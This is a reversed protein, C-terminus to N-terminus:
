IREAAKPDRGGPAASKKRQRYERQQALVRERNERYHARSKERIKERNKEYYSRQRKTIRERNEKYYAKRRQLVQERNRLYYERERDREKGMAQRDLEESREIEERELCFTAEIEADAGEMAALEEKTFPM